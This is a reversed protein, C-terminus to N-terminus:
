VRFRGQGGSGRGSPAACSLGPDALAQLAHGVGPERGSVLWGQLPQVSKTGGTGKTTMEEGGRMITWQGSDMAMGGKKRERREKRNESGGRLM